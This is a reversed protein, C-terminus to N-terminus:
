QNDTARSAIAARSIFSNAIMSFNFVWLAFHFVELRSPSGDMTAFSAVWHIAYAMILIQVAGLMISWFKTRASPSLAAYTLLPTIITCAAVLIETIGM